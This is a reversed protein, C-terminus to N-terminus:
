FDKLVKFALLAHIFTYYRRACVGDSATRTGDKSHCRAEAEQGGVTDRIHKRHSRRANGKVSGIRRILRSYRQKSVVVAFPVVSEATHPCSTAGSLIRLWHKTAWRCLFCLPWILGFPVVSKSYPSCFQYTTQVVVHKWTTTCLDYGCFLVITDDYVSPCM